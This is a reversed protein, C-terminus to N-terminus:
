RDSGRIHSQNHGGRAVFLVFVLSLFLVCKKTTQFIIGRVLWCNFTISQTQAKEYLNQRLLFFNDKPPSHLGVVRNQLSAM